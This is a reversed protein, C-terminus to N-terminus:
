TVARSRAVIALRRDLAMGLEVLLEVALRAEGPLVKPAPLGIGLAVAVGDEAFDRAGVAELGAM